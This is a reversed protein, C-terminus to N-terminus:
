DIVLKDITEDIEKPSLEKEPAEEKKDEKKTAIEVKKEVKPKRGGAKEEVVPPRQITMTDERVTKVIIHRLVDENADLTKKVGDLSAPDAEFKVWGFYGSSYTHKKNSVVTSMPYALDMLSPSGESFVRGSAGEVAKRIAEVKDTLQEEAVVPLILYGVEYIRGEVASDQIDVEKNMTAYVIM